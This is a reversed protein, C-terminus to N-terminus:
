GRRPERIRELREHIDAPLFMGDAIAAIEEAERWRDELEGLEGELARREDAEHLSMELALLLVPSVQSLATPGKFVMPRKGPRSAGALLPNLDPMETILEVSMQVVANISGEKNVIPLITALTKTADQDHLETYGPDMDRLHGRTFSNWLRGGGRRRLHHLRLNWGLAGPSPVIQSRQAHLARLRLWRGNPGPVAARHRFQQRAMVFVGATMAAATGYGWLSSSLFAPGLSRNALLQGGSYALQGALGAWFLAQSKLHRNRFIKGYRWAAFEPLMPQGIRVLETGEKLRALGIHETATRLKTDRYAREAEEIAEWRVELPTLNWRACSPCVVWLRGKAADFALRRGVPFHELSENRGLSGSCFLCSAYM